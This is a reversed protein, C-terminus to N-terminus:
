LNKNRVEMRRLLFNLIIFMIGYPILDDIAKVMSGRGMYVYAMLVIPAIFLMFRSRPVNKEIKLAVLLFISSWFIVGLLGGLSYFEALFSTGTGHGQYYAEPSIYSTLQWSLYNSADLREQTPGSYFISSDLFMRKFFDVVPSFLYPVGDPNLLEPSRLLYGTVCISTGNLHFFQFPVEFINLSYGSRLVVFLQGSFILFSTLLFLKFYNFKRGLVTIQYWFLFIISLFLEGRQGKLAGLIVFILFALAVYNFQKQNLYSAFMCYFGFILLRNFLTGFIAGSNERLDGNFISLYGNTYIYLADLLLNYIVIPFTLLLIYIGAQFLSRKHGYLFVSTNKQYIYLFIITPFFIAMQIMWLIREKEYASLLVRDFLTCYGFDYDSIVFELFVRSYLFLCSLVLFIPYISLSNSIHVSAIYAGIILLCSSLILFDLNQTISYCLCLTTCLMTVLAFFIASQKRFNQFKYPSISTM